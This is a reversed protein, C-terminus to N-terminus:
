DISIQDYHLLIYRGHKRKRANGEDSFIMIGANDGWRIPTIGEAKRLSNLGTIKVRRVADDLNGSWFWLEFPM